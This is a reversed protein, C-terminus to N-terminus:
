GVLGPWGYVPRGAHPLHEIVAMSQALAMMVFLTRGDDGGFCVNTAFGPAPLAITDLMTGDAAVVYICEGAPSAAYINGEVDVAFGDGAHGMDEIIWETSGDFGVRMLGNAEVIVLDGRHDLAIGNCYHFPGAVRHVTGDRDLRLVRGRPEPPLPHHGPDTFYLTGEATCVLDNPANFGGGDVTHDALVSVNGAPDVYQISPTLPELPPLDDMGPLNHISFDIGGNQTILFGGDAAPAAANPGGGARAIVTRSGDAPSVRHLLGDAVGTCVVTGDASSWIPGEGFLVGTRVVHMDYAKSGGM